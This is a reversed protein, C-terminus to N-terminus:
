VRAFWGRYREHQPNKKYFLYQEGNMCNLLIQENQQRSGPQWTLYRQLTSITSPGIRGDVSIDPYTAGGSNQMNLATQLFEVARTVGMNVATDFLEVAVNPSVPAVKDGQFRDWYMQKYFHLVPDRLYIDREDSSIGGAKWKDIIEWGSWSPHYARSIGRYTEGGPDHPDHAYGGEHGMTKAFAETFVEIPTLM